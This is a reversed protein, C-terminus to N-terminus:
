YYYNSYNTTAITTITDSNVDRVKVGSETTATINEFDCVVFALLYTPMKVTRKFDDYQFGDKMYTKIIPMNSLAIM